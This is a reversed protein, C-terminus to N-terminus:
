AAGPGDPKNFRAPRYCGSLALKGQAKPVLTLTAREPTCKPKKTRHVITLGTSKLYRSIQNQAHIHWPGSIDLKIYCRWHKVADHPRKAKELALAMNYHADAYTPALEIAREYCKIASAFNGVEDHVNALDFYALAYNPDLYTAAEYHKQAGAMNQMNYYMTGLNVHAMVHHPDDALLQRYLEAAGSPNADEQASAAKFLLDVNSAM